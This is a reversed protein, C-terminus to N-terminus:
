RPARTMRMEAGVARMAAVWSRVRGRLRRRLSARVGDELVEGFGREDDHGGCYAVEGTALEASWFILRLPGM